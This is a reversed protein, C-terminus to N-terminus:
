RSHSRGSTGALWQRQSRIEYGGAMAFVAPATYVGPQGPVPTATEEHEGMPMGPMQAIVKVQADSVPKGAAKITIKLTAKGVAIVAPDTVVEIRYPGAQTPMAMAVVAWVMALFVFLARLRM